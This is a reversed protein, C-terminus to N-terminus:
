GGTIAPEPQLHPLATSLAQFSGDACPYALLREGPERRLDRLDPVEHLRGTRGEDLNEAAGDGTAAVVIPRDPAAESPTVPGVLAAGGGDDRRRVIVPRGAVYADTGHGAELEIDSRGDGVSDLRVLGDRHELVIALDAGTTTPSRTLIPAACPQSDDYRLDVALAGAPVHEGATLLRVVECDLELMRHFVAEVEPRDVPSLVGGLSEADFRVLRWDVSPDAVERHIAASLEPGQLQRGLGVLRATTPGNLAVVHATEQTVPLEDRLAALAEFEGGTAPAPPEPRFPRAHIGVRVLRDRAEPLFTDLQELLYTLEARDSLVVVPLDTHALCWMTDAALTTVVRKEEIRRRDADIATEREIALRGVSVQTRADGDNRHADIIAELEADRQELARRRLVDLDQGALVRDVIDPVAAFQAVPGDWGLELLLDEVTRPTPLRAAGIARAAALSTGYPDTVAVVSAGEVATRRVGHPAPDIPLDLPSSARMRQGDDVCVLARSGAEDPGADERELSVDPLDDSTPVGGRGSMAQVGRRRVDIWRRGERSLEQRRRSGFAGVLYVPVDSVHDQIATLDNDHSLVVVGEVGPRWSTAIAGLVCVGDVGVEGHGDTAGRLPRVLETGLTRQQEALWRHSRAIIQERAQEAPAVGLEAIPELPLAVQFETPEIGVNRLVERTAALDPEIRQPWPRRESEPSCAWIQHAINAVDIIVPAHLWRGLL